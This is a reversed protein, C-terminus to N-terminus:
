RSVLANLVGAADAAGDVVVVERRDDGVVLLAQGSRLVFGKAGRMNRRGSVRYGWGGFDRLANVEVVEARRIESLPMAIVPWGIRSAARFGDESVSVQISGTLALGVAAVLVAVGLLYWNAMVVGLGCLVAVAAGVTVLGGAGVSATGTWSRQGDHAVPVEGVPATRGYGVPRVPTAFAVAVALVLAGVGCVATLWVPATASSADDLGRQRGTIWITVAIVFTATGTGIGTVIRSTVPEKVVFAGVGAIVAGVVATAATLVILETISSFGDAGDAGFHSAVRDPLDSSWIALLACGVVGVLLVVLPGITRRASESM